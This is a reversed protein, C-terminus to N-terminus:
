HVYNYFDVALLKLGLLSLLQKDMVETVDLAACRHLEVLHQQDIGVATYLHARGRHFTSLDHAFYQRREDLAVLHEDEVLLSSLTVALQVSVALLKGFHADFLDDSLWKVVVLCLSIACLFPTPLELFPRSDSLLRKPM